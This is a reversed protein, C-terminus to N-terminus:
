TVLIYSVVWYQRHKDKESGLSISHSVKSTQQAGLLLSPTLLIFSVHDMGPLCLSCLNKKGSECPM